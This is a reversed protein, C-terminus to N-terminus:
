CIGAIARLIDRLLSLDTNGDVHIEAAGIRIRIGAGTSAAITAPSVEAFQAPRCMKEPLANCVQKQRHYYTKENLGQEACWARVTLGSNAEIGSNGPLFPTSIISLFLLFVHFLLTLFM